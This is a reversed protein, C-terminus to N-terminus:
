QNRRLLPKKEITAAFTKGRIEIGIKTGIASAASEVYGMGIGVSLTPSQTGSTVEGIRSNGGVIPYHPRPPPSKAAMKFAVLQRGTGNKRQEMLVDRGIFDGKEFAVFKGLGADLPTTEENM